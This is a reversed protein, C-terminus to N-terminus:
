RTSKRDLRNWFHAEALKGMDDMEEMKLEVVEVEDSDCQSTHIEIGGRFADDVPVNVVTQILGHEVYIESLPQRMNSILYWRNNKFLTDVQNLATGPGFPPFGFGLIQNMGGWSGNNKIVKKKSRPPM